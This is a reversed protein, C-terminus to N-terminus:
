NKPANSQTQKPLTSTLILNSITVPHPLPRLLPNLHPVIWLRCSNENLSEKYQTAKKEKRIKSLRNRWRRKKPKSSHDGKKLWFLLQNLLLQNPPLSPSQKKICSQKAWKVNMGSVNLEHKLKMTTTAILLNLKQKRSTLHNLKQRTSIVKRRTLNRKLLKKNRKLTLLLKRHMLRPRLLTSKMTVPNLHLKTKKAIKLKRCGRLCQRRHWSSKRKSKQENWASMMRKRKARMILLFLASRQFLTLKSLQSEWILM